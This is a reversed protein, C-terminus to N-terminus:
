ENIEGILRKRLAPQSTKESLWIALFVEAFKTDEITGLLEGNFYFHSQNNAYLLALSDGKEINPWLVRLTDLYKGYQEKTFGLYQWQEVTNELLDDRTIDKLYHIDLLLPQNSTTSYSGNQTYLKSEYIDWFMFSFTAKGVQTLESKIKNIALLNAQATSMMLLCLFVISKASM